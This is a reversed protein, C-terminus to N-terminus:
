QSAGNQKQLKKRWADFYALARKEYARCLATAQEVDNEKAAEDIQREAELWAEGGIDFSAPLNEFGGLARFWDVATDNIRLYTDRAVIQAPNRPELYPYKM